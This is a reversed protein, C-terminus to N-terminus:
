IPVGERQVNLIFPSREHQFRELSVFARSIVIDNELSLRAVLESTQQILTAYNFDDRLIILVDLDSDSRETGRAYSGYLLIQDLKDGLIQRLESSLINLLRTRMKDNMTYIM